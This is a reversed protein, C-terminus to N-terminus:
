ANRRRTALDFQGYQQEFDEWAKKDEASLVDNKYYSRRVGVFRSLRKEEVSATATQQPFRQNEQIFHILLEMSDETSRRQAVTKDFSQYEAPYTRGTYGFFRKGDKLFLQYKQNSDLILNNQISYGDTSPRFQRVYAEIDDISALPIELSALYEDVFERITGGRHEGETWEKLTYTGSRGITGVEPHMRAGQIVSALQFTRDPYAESIAELLEAATMPRGHQKIIDYAIDSLTKYTNAELAFYGQVIDIHFFNPFLLECWSEVEALTAESLNEYKKKRVGTQKVLLPIEIVEKLCYSKEDLRKQNWLVDVSQILDIIPYDAALRSPFLALGKEQKQIHALVHTVDGIIIFEDFLVSITWLVFPESFSTGELQNISREIHLQYCNYPCPHPFTSKLKKIGGELKDFASNRLQRIREITFGLTRSLTRKDKLEQGEYVRVCSTLIMMQEAALGQILSQVAKFYPLYGNEEMSKIIEDIDIDRIGLNALSSRLADIRADEVSYNNAADEIKRWFSLLFAEIEQISSKGCNQLTAVSFDPETIAEYLSSISGGSRYFLTRLINKSRPSLDQIRKWFETEFLELHEPVPGQIGRPFIPNKPAMDFLIRDIDEPSADSQCLQIIRATYEKLEPITKKGVNELDPISFGPSSITEYFCRVDRNCNEYLSEMVHRGRNSLSKMNEKVLPELLQFDRPKPAPEPVSEQKAQQGLSVAEGRLEGIFQYIEKMSKAGCNPLRYIDYAEMDLFSRLFDETILDAGPLKKVVNVSRSSLGAIKRVFLAQLEKVCGSIDPLPTKFLGEHIDNM